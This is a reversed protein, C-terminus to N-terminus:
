LFKNASFYIELIEANGSAASFTLSDNEPDKFFSNVDYEILEGTPTLEFGEENGIFKPAQNTDIINAPM